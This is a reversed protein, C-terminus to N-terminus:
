IDATEIKQRMLEVFAPFKDPTLTRSTAAQTAIRELSAQTLDRASKIAAILENLQEMGFHHTGEMKAQLLGTLFLDGPEICSVSVLEPHHCQGRAINASMDVM